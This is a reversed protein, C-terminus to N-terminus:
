YTKAVAARPAAEAHAAMGRARSPPSGGRRYSAREWASWPFVSFLNDRPSLAGAQSSSSGSRLPFSKDLPIVHKVTLKENVSDVLVEEVLLRVVQKKEEFGLAGLRSSFKDQFTSFQEILQLQKQERHKEEELLTYEQEISKIRGRIRDLRPTIEELSIIGTQYLDILRKKELEQSHMEKKKKMIMSTLDFDGKRKANVRQSYEKFVVDPYQILHQTQEWVLEDLVEVRIPHGACVRGQPWRRGDQGMCRYYCRKYKSSSTPKGYIAYGCSQCRLLGSLLYPYRTNNRPAHKKNTELRRAARAFVRPAIIQPVAIFLWADRPRQRASSHVHKPYFGHDHAQKTPRKRPVAQTKGYAAQGTYAPNRLMGWVMSRGWEPAGRRTPIHDATLARAIAGISLGDDVYLTFVRRVIDAEHPHIEYRAESTEGRAIYVYGYPAGSLVSVRGQKAKHLKGRRSREIIKEREFEAIVGQMQLLLQDEPTQAIPRNVFIIDVGLRQFEEILVLQHVHKRALRDPTLVLIHDITGRMAHDRLVELGPRALTAGSFGDDTFICDADIGYGQEDVYAHLSALQSEITGEDVQRDSSVRAYLAVHNPM